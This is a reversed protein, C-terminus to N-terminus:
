GPAAARPLAAQLRRAMVSGAARAVELALGPVRQALEEFRPARLAWVGCPTMAEVNMAQPADLFPMTEGVLSGPRLVTVRPRGAGGAFMQLSGRALFYMTRDSDGQRILMDGGRLAHPTMYQSLVRVLEASLRGRFADDTNLSQVAAVLETIDM